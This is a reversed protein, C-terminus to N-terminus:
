FCGDFTHIAREVGNCLQVLIPIVPEREMTGVQEFAIQVTSNVEVEFEPNAAGRLPIWHVEVGDEIASPYRAILRGQSDTTTPPLEIGFAPDTSENKTITIVNGLFLAHTVVVLLRHKDAIDLNHIIRLISNAPDTTKYPQLAEILPRDTKSVGKIIGGRVAKEFRERSDCVPFQIREDDPIAIKKALAWVVHDFASRLHHVIEGAVVAIRLPAPPGLLKFAYRRREPQNEGVITYSGSNLLATIESNLNGIQERAREIKAWCGDLPRSM